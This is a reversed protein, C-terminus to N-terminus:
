YAGILIPLYHSTHGPASSVLTMLVANGASPASNVAVTVTDKDGNLGVGKALGITLLSTTAPKLGNGEVAAVDWYGTPADSYYGVDFAKSSGVPIQYGLATVATPTAGVLVSVTEMALPTVNFYPETSQPACPSHGAAASANSWMRQLSYPLDAPGAFFADAFSECTDGIEDDLTGAVMSWALHTPDFGIVAPASFPHPNTVDESIEHSASDTAADLVARSGNCNEDIVVYTIDQNASTAEVDAHLSKYLSCTDVGVSTLKTATPVYVVYLTAPDWAPWGSTAPDTVQAVLWTELAKTEITAPPATSIRVHNAPGSTAPGVGYEGVVTKWYSSAGLKDGFDELAGENPDVTWTVTVIKASTLLPGGHNTIQAIDPKFAPYSKAPGSSSASGCGLVLAALVAGLVLGVLRRAEM